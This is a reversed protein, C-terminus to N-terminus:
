FINQSARKSNLINIIEEYESEEFYHKQLFCVEEINEVREFIIELGKYGPRKQNRIDGDFITLSKIDRYM